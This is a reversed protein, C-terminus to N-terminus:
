TLIASLGGMVLAVGAAGAVILRLARPLDRRLVVAGVGLLVALALTAGWGIALSVLIAGMAAAIMVLGVLLVSIPHEDLPDAALQSATHEDTRLDTM